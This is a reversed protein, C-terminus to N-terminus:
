WELMLKLGYDEDNACMAVRNAETAPLFDRNQGSIGKKKFKQIINESTRLMFDYTDFVERYSPRSLMDCQAKMCFFYHRFSNSESYNTSSPIGGRFLMSSYENAFSEEPVFELLYGRQMAVDLSTVKYECMANPHYYWISKHKIDNDQPSKFKSPMFSRTNMYTGTALGDIHALSYMLGQHNSYGVIVKRNHLKLCTLLKMIGITWLPDTTIYENNSPHPIVYYGDVDVSRLSEVLNEIAEPNRITEPYLCVTALLPKSTKKRFYAASNCIWAIGYAFGDEKMEKGPLIIASSNIENNIRLLGQNITLYGTDTSVSVGEQPWYDYKRLKDHGEKPYFMQPDFLVEGGSANIKKAFAAIKSQEMNVPSIIATGCGWSKILEEALGKMGHGMQLLLEM